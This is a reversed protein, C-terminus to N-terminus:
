PEPLLPTITAVCGTRINYRVSTAWPANLMVVQTSYHLQFNDTYATGDDAQISGLSPIRRAPTEATHGWSAPVTTFSVIVGLIDQVAIAGTGTLGTVPTGAIWAFPLLRRQLLDLRQTLLSLDLVTPQFIGCLDGVTTCTATPIDPVSTIPLPPPAPAYAAPSAACIIPDVGYNNPSDPNDTSLNWPLIRAQLSSMGSPTSPATTQYYTDMTNGSVSRRIIFEYTAAVTLTLPASFYVTNWGAALTVTTFNDSTTPVNFWIIQYSGATVVDVNLGWLTLGGTGM